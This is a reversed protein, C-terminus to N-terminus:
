LERQVSYGFVYHPGLLFRLYTILLAFIQRVHKEATYVYERSNM